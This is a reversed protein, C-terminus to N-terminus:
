SITKHAHIELLRKYCSACCVPFEALPGGFRVEDGPDHHRRFAIYEPKNWIGTLTEFEINGFAMRQLAYPRDEFLYLSRASDDSEMEGCLVPDTFVCPAVDGDVSILCSRHVNEGCRPSAEDLDPGNYSFSIGKKAALAKIGELLAM